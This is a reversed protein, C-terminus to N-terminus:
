TLTFVGAGNITITLTNGTTVTINAPANDLLSHCVIPDAPSTPTTDFIAAWKCVISGGSANWVIDDCDFMVTTTTRKWQNANSISITCGSGGQTYGYATAVENTVNAYLDAAATDSINSTSLLLIMFFEDLDMDITGDGMLEKFYDHLVWADATM